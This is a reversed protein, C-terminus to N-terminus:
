KWKTIRKYINGLIFDFCWSITITVIIWAFVGPTNLNIKEFYFSDGISNISQSLVEAAIVIKLNLGLATSMAAMLYSVISPIYVEKLIRWKKVDYMHAMEILDSDVNYIGEVVNSYMVPFIILFGILIPAYESKLWILALLIIGIAPTAKIVTVLPDLLYYVPKFIGAAVGMILACFLAISFGALSRILTNSIAEIFGHTKMIFILNEITAEPSPLIIEKGVYISLFKWLVILFVISIGTYIKNQSIYDKM